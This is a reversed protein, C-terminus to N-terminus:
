LVPFGVSGGSIRLINNNIATSVFSYRGLFTCESSRMSRGPAVLPTITEYGQEDFINQYAMNILVELVSQNEMSGPAKGVLGPGNIPGYVYKPNYKTGDASNVLPVAYALEPCLNSSNLKIPEADISVNTLKGYNTSGLPDLSAFELSYSYMHYGTPCFVPAGTSAPLSPAHYYPQTLSYYSTDLLGLRPTTEYLLSAREIPDFGNKCTIVSQTVNQIKGIYKAIGGGGNARYYTSDDGVLNSANIADSAPITTSGFEANGATTANWAYNITKDWLTKDFVPGDLTVQDTAAAQLVPFGITYNSHINTATVNKVAFFLAKITYAYRLNLRVSTSSSTECVVSRNNNILGPGWGNVEGDPLVTATGLCHAQGSPRQPLKGGEVPWNQEGSPISNDPVIANNGTFDTAKFSADGVPVNSGSGAPSENV